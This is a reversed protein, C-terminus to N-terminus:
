IDFEVPRRVGLELTLVANEISYKEKNDIVQQAFNDLEGRTLFENDTSVQIHRTIPKGLQDIGEVLYRYSFRRRIETVSEPLAATRFIENPSVLNTLNRGITEQRRLGQIIPTLSTGRPISIGTNRIARRIASISLGRRVGGTMLPFAVRVVKPLAALLSRPM